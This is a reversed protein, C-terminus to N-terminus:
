AALVSDLHQFAPSTTSTKWRQCCRGWSEPPESPDPLLGVRFLGDTQNAPALSFVHEYRALRDQIGPAYVGRKATENRPLRNVATGLVHRVAHPLKRWSEGYRIGLHRKYGCFLEDPGQGILVVKM